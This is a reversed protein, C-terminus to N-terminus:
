ISITVTIPYSDNFATGSSSVLSLTGTPASPISDWYVSIGLGTSPSPHIRFAGPTFSFEIHYAAQSLRITGSNTTMSTLIATRDVNLADIFNIYLSADSLILNPDAIGLDTTHNPFTISGDVIAPNYGGAGIVLYYEGATEGASNPVITFGDTFQISAM